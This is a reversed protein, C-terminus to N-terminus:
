LLRRSEQELADRTFHLTPGAMHNFYDWSHGGARTRFDVRHPVGLATLKERLRDNGRFWPDAPDIVFLIHPPYKAPRVHLTATDQRCQEKSAYMADIPTGQGYWEHYDIAASVASVVPFREPHKFALRLAGQGGMSIGSVAIAQPRLAWRAEMFPVVNDLLHREATLAPDFEPCARDTWWSRGAHPCVCALGLEALLPTYVPNDRLTELGVPHLHLLAFRPPGGPPDFVDAPKGAIALTTWTGPM